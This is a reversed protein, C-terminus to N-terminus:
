RDGTAKRRVMPCMFPRGACRWSDERASRTSQGTFTNAFDIDAQYGKMVWKGQM